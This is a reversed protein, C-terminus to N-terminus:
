AHSAPAPGGAVVRVRQGDHVGTGGRGDAKAAYLAIDAIRLLMAQDKSNRPFEAVGASFAVGEGAPGVSATALSTRLREVVGLAFQADVQPLALVFEDGGLRACVDNPRTEAVIRDALIRLAEDGVAHGHEDNTQKFRDIDLAVLTVSSRERAARGLEGTLRSEFARLNALGTLPDEYALSELRDQSEDLRQAMEDFARALTGIEDARRWGLRIGRKGRAIRHTALWMQRVPRVVLAGLLLNTIAALLAAIGIAAALGIGRQVSLASDLRRMDLSLSMVAVSAGGGGSQRLPFSVVGYHKDARQEDRYDFRGSSLLRLDQRDARPAAGGASAVPEQGSRQGRVYIAANALGPNMRSLTELRRNLGTPDGLAGADFGGAFTRAMALLQARATDRYASALRDSAYALALLVTVGTIAALVLSVTLTLRYRNTDPRKERM